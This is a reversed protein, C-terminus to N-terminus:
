HKLFGPRYEVSCKLLSLTFLLRNVNCFQVLPRQENFVYCIDNELCFIPLYHFVRSPCRYLYNFSKVHKENKCNVKGKLTKETVKVRGRLEVIEKQLNSKQEFPDLNKFM